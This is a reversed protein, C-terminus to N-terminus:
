NVSDVRLCSIQTLLLCNQESVERFCRAASTDEVRGGLSISSSLHVQVIKSSVEAAVYGDLSSVMHEDSMSSTSISGFLDVKRTFRM